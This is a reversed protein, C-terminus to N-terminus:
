PSYTCRFGVYNMRYSPGRNLFLSYIGGTNGNGWAGGWMFAHNPFDSIPDLSFNGNLVQGIGYGSDLYSYAPSYQTTSVSDWELWDSSARGFNVDGTPKIEDTWEWMNGAFDWLIEGNNNVELTRRQGVCARGGVIVDDSPFAKNHFGDCSTENDGTRYYGDLDNLSANLGVTAGVPGEIGLDNHGLFMFNSGVSGGYWNNSREFTDRAIALRENNTMLKFGSGLNSCLTQAESQNVFNLPISQPKSIIQVNTVDCPLTGDSCSMNIPNSLFVETATTAKAEYKMVCFESVGYYRDAHIKVWDGHPLVSCDLPDVLSYSNTFVLYDRDEDQKDKYLTIVLNGDSDTFYTFEVTDPLDYYYPTQGEETIYDRIILLSADSDLVITYSDLLFSPITINREYGGLVEGYINFEEIILNAVDERYLTAEQKSFELSFFGMSYLALSVLILAFVFLIIFELSAQARRFFLFDNM